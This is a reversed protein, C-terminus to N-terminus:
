GPIEDQFLEDLWFQQRYMQAYLGDRQVLEDHTGREAIGGDELVLICDAHKITSLRHAIIFTTRGEMLQELAHHILFESESDVSSTAEDLILIRPNALVARAISLRQRQGGSLKVGREGIETDYGDPLKEIFEHANAAKAAAILEEDTAAVKGFKLNDRVSGNFLFTEQLVLAINKRLDEQRVARVDIGDVLVRGDLVEYFRPILNVFSSKGAGSRGVLAIREGPKAHMTIDHLVEEGTAYKFSVHEFEVEGHIDGMPQPDKADQIDPVTDLVEFLREAAALSRQISDFFNFLNGIPQYFNTVYLWCASLEGATLLGRSAQVLGVGVVLVSGIYGVFSMAPGFSSWLRIGRVNMALVETSEHSIHSEEIRERNFAKIVRIGSINDQLKANLDGVRDRIKRYVSRMTRSFFFISVAIVPVPILVVLALVPSMGWIYYLALGMGFLGMLLIDMGHELLHEVQEVDGVMRSMLDGTQRSDYYALSLTQFHVYLKVRLDHLLRQGAVHLLYTRLFGFLTGGAFILLLNIVLRTTQEYHHGGVADDIIRRIILPPQSLMYTSLGMCVLGIVVEPWFPKIWPLVRKFGQWPNKAHAPTGGRALRGMGMGTRMVTIFEERASFLRAIYLYKRRRM